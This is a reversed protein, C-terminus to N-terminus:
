HENNCNWEEDALEYTNGQFNYHWWESRIASFGHKKMLKKLKLRSALVEEPLDTYTHNAKPGFFDFATGMDLQQGTSDVITLDVAGGRNHISGKSPDAVYGPQPFIEWLRYQVDRPRYCDFMKLGLGETKLEQHAAVVALAAEPRLFCRPCAYLVKGVFNNETAYRIDLMISSDLDVLELWQTTDYDLTDQQIVEIPIEVPFAGLGERISSMQELKAENTQCSFLLLCLMSVYLTSRM